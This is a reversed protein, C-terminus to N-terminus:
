IRCKENKVEHVKKTHYGKDINGGKREISQEIALRQNKKMIAVDRETHKMLKKYTDLMGIGDKFVDDLGGRREVRYNYMNNFRKMKEKVYKKLLGNVTSTFNDTGLYNVLQKKGEKLYSEIVEDVAGEETINLEQKIEKILKEM